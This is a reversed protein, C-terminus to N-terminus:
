VWSGVYAPPLYHDRVPIPDDTTRALTEEVLRRSLRRDTVVGDFEEMMEAKTMIPLRALDSLEFGTPDIGTLRRAHYPSHVLCHALLARLRDRQHAAIADASWGLRGVHEAMGGFLNAQIRHRLREFSLPAATM